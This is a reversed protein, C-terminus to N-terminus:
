LFARHNSLPCEGKHDVCHGMSNSGHIGALVPWLHNWTWLAAALPSARRKRLLKTRSKFENLHRTCLPFTYSINVSHSHDISMHKYTPTHTCCAELLSWHAWAKVNILVGLRDSVPSDSRININLSHLAGKCFTRENPRDTVFVNILRHYVPVPSYFCM